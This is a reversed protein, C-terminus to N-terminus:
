SVEAVPQGRRKELESIITEFSESKFVVSKSSTPTPLDDNSIYNVGITEKRSDQKVSTIKGWAIMINNQKLIVIDVIFWLVWISPVFIKNFNLIQQLILSFVVIGAGFLIKEGKPFATKGFVRIGDQSLVVKGGGIYPCQINDPKLHTRFQVDFHTKDIPEYQGSFGSIDVQRKILVRRIAEFGEETWQEHDNDKLAQVLEDTTKREQLNEMINIIQHEDM